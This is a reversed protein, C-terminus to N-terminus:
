EQKRITIHISDTNQLLAQANYLSQAFAEADEELLFAKAVRRTDTSYNGYRANWSVIYVEAGEAEKIAKFGFISNLKEKFKM